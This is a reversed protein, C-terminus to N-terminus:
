LPCFLLHVVRCWVVVTTTTARDRGPTMPNSPLLGHSTGNMLDLVEGQKRGPRGWSFNFLSWRRTTTIIDSLRQCRVAIIASENAVVVTNHCMTNCCWLLCAVGGGVRWRGGHHLWHHINVILLVAFSWSNITSYWTHIYYPVISNNRTYIASVFRKLESVPMSGACRGFCM